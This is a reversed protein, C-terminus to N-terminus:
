SGAEEAPPQPQGNTPGNPGIRLGTGQAAAILESLADAKQENDREYLGLHRMLKDIAAVKDHMKIKFAGKDSLSVESVAALTEPSLDASDIADVYPLDIPAIGVKLTVPRTGWSLTDSVKARMIAALENIVEDATVKTREARETMLRQVDAKVDERQLLNYGQQGATRESYGARIAAKTADLDIIYEACFAAQKPTLPM